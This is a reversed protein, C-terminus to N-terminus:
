IKYAFVRTKIKTRKKKKSLYFSGLYISLLHDPGPQEFCVIDNTLTENLNLVKIDLIHWYKKNFLHSFSKCQLLKECKKEVFIDTYKIIFNYYM